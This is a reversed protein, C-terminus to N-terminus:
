NKIKKLEQQAAKQTVWVIWGNVSRGTNEAAKRVMEAHEHSAFRFDLRPRHEM